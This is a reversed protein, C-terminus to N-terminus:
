DPNAINWRMAYYILGAHSRLDLKRMIKARHTEVTRVSITLQEAIEKNARGQAILSLIERERRTLADQRETKEPLSPDAVDVPVYYRKTRDIM